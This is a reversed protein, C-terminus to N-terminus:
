ESNWGYQLQGGLKDALPLKRLMSHKQSDTIQHRQHATPTMQQHHVNEAFATVSDMPSHVPRRSLIMQDPVYYPQCAGACSKLNGSDCPRQQRSSSDERAFCCGRPSADLKSVWLGCTSQHFSHVIWRCHSLGVILTDTVREFLRSHM